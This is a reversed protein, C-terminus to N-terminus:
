GWKLCIMYPISTIDFNTENWEIIKWDPCFIEWFEICKKLIEPKENGGFWCYHIVKDIM